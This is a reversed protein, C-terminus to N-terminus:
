GCPGPLETSQVPAYPHCRWKHGWLGCLNDGPRQEWSCPLHQPLLGRARLAPPPPTPPGCHGQWWAEQSAPQQPAPCKARLPVRAELHCPAYTGKGFDEARAPVPRPSSPLRSHAGGQESPLPGPSRPVPPQAPRSHEECPDQSAASSATVPTCTDGARTLGSSGTPLSSQRHPRLTPLLCRASAAGGPAVRTRFRPSNFGTHKPTM